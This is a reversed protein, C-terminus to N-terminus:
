ELVISSEMVPCGPFMDPLDIRRKLQKNQNNCHFIGSIEGLSNYPTVTTWNELFDFCQYSDPENIFLEFYDLVTGRLYLIAFFV